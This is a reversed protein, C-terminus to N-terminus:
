EAPTKLDKTLNIVHNYFTDYDAKATELNEFYLKEDQIVQNVSIRGDSQISAQLYNIPVDTTGTQTNVSVASVASITLQKSFNTIM